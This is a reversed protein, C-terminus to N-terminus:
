LAGGQPEGAAIVSPTLLDVTIVATDPATGLNNYLEVRVVSVPLLPETSTAPDDMMYTRWTWGPQGDVEGEEDIPVASDQTYWGALLRDAIGVAELKRQATAHQELLNGRALLLAVTVSGLIALGALVEVLTAARWSRLCTQSRRNM